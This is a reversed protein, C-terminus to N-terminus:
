IYRCLKNKLKELVEDGLGCAKLYNEVTQYEGEIHDLLMIMNEAATSFFPHSYDGDKGAPTLMSLRKYVPRLYTSSVSYDAAVDERSVGCLRLLLATIIGTRDKGTTCHFLACGPADALATLVTRVWEMNDKAMSIYHTGWTFDDGPGGPAGPGPGGPGGPGGPPPPPPADEGDGTQGVRPDVMSLNMYNVFDCDALADPASKAEFKGRLDIDTTMGYDKLFKIDSESMEQPLESRLFVGYRTVGGDFAYGGLERANGLGDLPLRRYEIM